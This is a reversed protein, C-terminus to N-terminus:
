EKFGIFIAFIICQGARVNVRRSGLTGYPTDAACVYGTNHVNDNYQSEPFPLLCLSGDERILRVGIIDHAEVYTDEEQGGNALAMWKVKLQRAGTGYGGTVPIDIACPIVTGYKNSFLV